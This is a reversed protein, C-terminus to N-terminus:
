TQYLTYTKIQCFLFLHVEHCKFHLTSTNPESFSYDLTSDERYCFQNSQTSYVEVLLRHHCLSEIM